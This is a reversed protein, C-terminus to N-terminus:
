DADEVYEISGERVLERYWWGSDKVTRRTAHEYDCHVIGFRQTYGSSWEFNDILSWLFYGRVDIGNAVARGLQGIYGRLFDIRAVDHVHGDPGPGLADSYGNETVYLPIGPYDRHIRELARYMGAPRIQWGFGTVPGSPALLKTGEPNDAAQIEVGFYHNVGIFDPHARLADFDGDRVAMLELALDQELFATPYSGRLMPDLFWANTLAHYRDAAAIDEASDSAPYAPEQNVVTGIRARGGQSAQLARIAASQALNVVHTARLWAIRDSIGPAHTGELYGLTTFVQPENLVAWHRVRDGLAAAVAEVYDVFPGVLERTTWGGRRFMWEPLDWHFLTPFPEIGAELLADVLRRYHDLGAQNVTGREDRVVRSWAVSFRYAGVGLERMIAIDDPYRHYQDCAVDGTAGDLIAGPSHSFTDWISPVKGDEAVAGEVQYASTAVGWVFGDPFRVHAM